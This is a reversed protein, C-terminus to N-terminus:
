ETITVKIAGSRKDAATRFADGIAALPLRHTILEAAIEAGRRRLIDLVVDFDARAGARSYTLSGIIRLEKTILFIAPLPPTKTFM